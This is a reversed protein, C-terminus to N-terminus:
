NTNNGVKWEEVFTSEGNNDDEDPNIEVNTENNEVKYEDNDAQLYDALEDLLPKIMKDNSRAGNYRICKKKDEKKNCYVNAYNKQFNEVFANFQTTNKEGTCVDDIFEKCNNVSIEGYYRESSQYLKVDEKKRNLRLLSAECGSSYM